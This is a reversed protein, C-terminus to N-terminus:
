RSRVRLTSDSSFCGRTGAAKVSIKSRGPTRSSARRDARVSRARAPLRVSIFVNSSKILPVPAAVSGRSSAVSTSSTRSIGPRGAASSPSTRGSISFKAILPRWGSRLCTAYTISSVTSPTGSLTQVSALPETRPNRSRTPAMGM